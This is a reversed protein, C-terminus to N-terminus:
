PVNEERCTRRLSENWSIETRAKWYIETCGRSGCPSDSLYQGGIDPQGSTLDALCPFSPRDPWSRRYVGWVKGAGDACFRPNRDGRCGHDLIYKTSVSSFVITIRYQYCRCDVHPYQNATAFETGWGSGPFLKWQGKVRGRNESNPRRDVWHQFWLCLWGAGGGLSLAFDLGNEACWTKRRSCRGPLSPQLVTLDCGNRSM